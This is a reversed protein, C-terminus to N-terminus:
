VSAIDAVYQHGSFQVEVVPFADGWDNDPGRRLGIVRLGANAAASAVNLGMSALGTVTNGSLAEWDYQQGIAAVTLTANAQIEYVMNPDLTYYSVIGTAVTSALWRNAYRTRGEADIYEVGQFIGVARSGAASATLFGAASIIVPYGLFVNTAYATEIQAGQPGPRLVGSPHWAPRLGFPTYVSSM